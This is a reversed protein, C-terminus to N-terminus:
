LGFYQKANYFSVGEILMGLTEYDHPFKGDEVWTGILNCLIRRFYEHRPYSLFCRSDTLMGIFRGLLGESALVRMQKEMGDAHDQFWWATGMQIKSPISDDHFNGLMTAIVLNDSDNLSFLIMKPLQGDRELADMISSIKLALPHDCVSDYGTAEGTKAVANTNCNRMANMHLEMVWGHESYQRGLWLLLETKYGKIEADTLPKGALAKRCIDDAQEVGVPSFPLAEFSQDSAMCGAKAFEDMRVALAYTLSEWNTISVDSVQSLIEIYDKWTSKEISLVKDPRYTPLVKTTFSSDAALLHHYKLTDAPDETTCLAYVNSNVIFYRPTHKGDALQANVKQWIDSASKSNLVQHINFYRQLELHTWHYLPNGVAYPLTEAFALFKDYM